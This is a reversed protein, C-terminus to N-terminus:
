RDVVRTQFDLYAPNYRNVTTPVVRVTVTFTRSPGDEVLWRVSYTRSEQGTSAESYGTVETDLSGGVALATGFQRGEALARIEEIKSQAVQTMEARAQSQIQLTRIPAAVGAMTVVGIILVLIAVLVEILTFGQRLGTPPAHQPKQMASQM